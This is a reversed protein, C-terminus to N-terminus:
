YIKRLGALAMSNVPPNRQGLQRLAGVGPISVEGGVDQPGMMTPAATIAAAPSSAPKDAAIGGGGLGAAPAPTAAPTPAQAAAQLGAVAAGPKATGFAAEVRAADGGAGEKAAIAGPNKAYWQDFEEDSYGKSKAYSKANEYQYLPGAM